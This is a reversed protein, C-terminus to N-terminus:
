DDGVEHLFALIAGAVEQPHELPFAHSAPESLGIEVDGVLDLLEGAVEAPVLADASAFLHLQPGCFAELAARTDMAALLDLSSILVNRETQPAGDVLQRALARPEQAGQACLLGFRKLTAAPDINCGDYFAAFTSAPMAWPWDESAVFRANSGLTVLGCCHEGRLAALEAALMGGLSWGGLWADTPLSADLAALWEALDPSDLEPLPAIQVKLRPDQERLAAALPALPAPGLAWGPLLILRDRM